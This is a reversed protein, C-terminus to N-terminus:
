QFIYYKLDLNLDLTYDNSLFLTSVLVNHKKYITNNKISKYGVYICKQESLHLIIAFM